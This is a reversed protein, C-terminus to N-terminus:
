LEVDTTLGTKHLAAAMEQVIVALAAANLFSSKGGSHWFEPHGVGAWEGDMAEFCAQLSAKMMEVTFSKKDFM